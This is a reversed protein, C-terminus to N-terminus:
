NVHTLLINHIELNILSLITPPRDQPIKLRTDIATWDADYVLPDNTALLTVVAYVIFQLELVHDPDALEQRGDQWLSALAPALSVSLGFRISPAQAALIFLLITSNLQTSDM